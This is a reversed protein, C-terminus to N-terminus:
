AAYGDRARATEGVATFFSRLMRNVTQTPAAQPCADPVGDLAFAEASVPGAGDGAALGRGGVDVLAVKLRSGALAGTKVCGGTVQLVAM